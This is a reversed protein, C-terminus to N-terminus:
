REPSWRSSIAAIESRSSSALASVALAVAAFLGLHHLSEFRWVSSPDARGTGIGHVVRLAIWALAGLGVIGAVRVRRLAVVAVGAALGWLGYAPAVFLACGAALAGSAVLCRVLGDRRVPVAWAAPATVAPDARRRDAIALAICGLVALGSLILAVTLPRQITWTISVTVAGDHPEIWWGNFGGDVLQPPGLSGGDVTARWGDHLGEGLTLWCGAECGTVEVTRSTRGQSTVTAQPGDGVSAPAPEDAALVIRDVQLGSRRDSQGSVRRAGAALEVAGAAAPGDGCPEVTLPEGAFADAVTGSVRLPVGVGDVTVLDDRCETTFTDPIVAGVVNDLEAIAAPLLVTDGFRRDTTTHPEVYTVVLTLPGSAYGDPIEVTSWGDADPPDVAVTTSLDGQVLRLGLIPSYDGAPQQLRLPRSPDALEVQLRTGLVGDGFATTWATTPDGDAAAWGGAAPVGLLRASSTPGSIGLLGALVTDSARADLRVEASVTAPQDFPVDIEREITWEPDSRWRNTPAVRQRTLVYTVPREVGAARLASTLDTPTVIVEPSAGLGTDVEAFGVKTPDPRPSTPASTRGLALRITAPGDTAPFTVTQGTVLSREDLEVEFPDRGDVTITVSQLRRGPGLGGPQLLRVHDVPGDTSVELYQGAPNLVQWATNPDGDVALGPRDEPEYSFLEGYSTARARVPGDTRSTTWTSDDADPFVELRADGSDPWIVASGELSETYGTVDQSSRWHHARLRNSDTVIVTAAGSAVAALEAADISASYRIVEHGSLLGAAAADVIGDGNGSMLVVQDGARVVAVPDDVPVLEVPAVPTGVAPESLSQEDIMPVDPVNVAPEGYPVPDGLGDPNAAFLKSMLEPRPTRFRDFAADGTVWIRDAGLLRAIPAIAAPEIVGVQFRDDLAYILDMAAPSGLPLLDRTVLPRETLAPLPPDVTYGWRFAGFEAGPVQLVRYGAPLDDLDAAADLWAAPPQEDRSLAPDVLRHGTLVPLNVIAVVGVAAAGAWQLSVRPRGAAEVLAGLGLGLGLTLLPLARTSSRLALALGSSGDGTLFAAIPSPDAFPHVGVALVVGAFVLVLAYRRAAFRTAVLGAVAALLLVFGAVAVRGSTMYDAGATTTPAYADRVYMLWYGLARWVEVSSATYSVDELSESYDLLDAGHRGQIWLMVIWWLSTAVALAGIRVAASVARRLPVTREAAAILLYLVPAPAIMALATANVNGATAIVLACLAADRWRTRTAAGVTLGVVWGLAAWPLLMSSTRSIYPVLYPSLQYVAGATFAAPAGLGLRRAAWAVGTGAALMLTGIWLRHSVWDPVGIAQLATYWPGTPWLYAIIQHPVWGAFQRADFSWISDSLLRAPNLYLYLKTDAPMRGPSSMLAPVYALAALVATAALWARRGISGRVSNSSSKV